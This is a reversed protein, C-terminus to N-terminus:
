GRGGALLAALAETIPQGTRDEVFGWQGAPNLELFLWAGDDRRRLDAAAYRLGLERVLRRLPGEVEPPLQCPEIRCEAECGRYDDAASTARADIEAAFLREGVVTVRVDVGPVREQLIVPFRRLTDLSALDAPGVRRTRRWDAPTSHVAKHVVEGEPFRALFASAAEPDSTVLTEPLRLGARLAAPLQCTKLGAAQDRWPDNVLLASPALSTVLGQLADTAQRVAIAAQEPEHEPAAALPRTRRWWVATVRGTDIPQRGDLLLHRRGGAGYALAFRVRGPLDATDLPVAEVGRRALADLLPRAHDDGAHTVALIV